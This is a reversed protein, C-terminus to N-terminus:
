ADPAKAEQKIMEIADALATVKQGKEGLRRIAVSREESERAGVALIFPIKRNSHERM